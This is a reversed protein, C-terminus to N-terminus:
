NIKQYYAICKHDIVNNQHVQNYFMKRTYEAQAKSTKLVVIGQRCIYLMCGLKWKIICYKPYAINAHTFVIGLANFVRTFTVLDENIINLRNFM